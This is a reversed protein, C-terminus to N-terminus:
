DSVNETAPKAVRSETQLPGNDPRESFTALFRYVDRNWRADHLANHETSSQEPLKPNGLDDCWQKLDRCYMPWGKPLEMMTGFLQCLVVWDYDAYYGWFEPGSDHKSVTGDSNPLGSSRVFERVRDAIENPPIPWSNGLHPIVNAKVWDNANEQTARSNIAYFERGLESVIGISLLELPYQPGREIFETDIFFRM